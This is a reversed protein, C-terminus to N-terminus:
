FEKKVVLRFSRPETPHFHIDEVPAPEGALQSEYFYDIQHTKENFLNYADLRVMLGDAFQYGIRASVPSRSKSRVSDDEILPRPGFYSVKIGGFWGGYVKEFNLGASVVGEIAGPIHRGPAGPDDELFRAHAYAASVDFSLWSMVQYLLTYEAGIRRSPRSAETTGADGVFVLESDFDLIFASLTSSLGHSPQTRVGIEAGKSRVLFPTPVAPLGSKPDVTTLPGRADNSHFGTGANVYVETSPTPMFALGVKPSIITDLESGSNAPLNGSVDADYLDARLGAFTRLWPTWHVTHEGFVGVSFENVGDARVTSTVVRQKTNFLGVEIDDYRTQVGLTTETKLGGFAGFMTRSASGGFM